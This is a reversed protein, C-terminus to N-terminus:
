IKIKNLTPLIIDFANKSKDSFSANEIFIYFKFCDNHDCLIGNSTALNKDHFKLFFKFLKVQDRPLIIDVLGCKTNVTCTLEGINEKYKITEFNNIIYNKSLEYFNNNM